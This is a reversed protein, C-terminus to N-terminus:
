NRNKTLITKDKFEVFNVYVGVITTFTKTEEDFLTVYENSAEILIGKFVRDHWVASDPFTAYVTIREKPMNEFDITFTDNDITKYGQPPPHIEIGTHKRSFYSILEALFKMHHTFFFHAIKYSFYARVGPYTFLIQFFNNAAPDRRKISAFYSEQKIKKQSM